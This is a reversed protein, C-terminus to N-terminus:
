TDFPLYRFSLSIPQAWISKWVDDTAALFFYWLLRRWHLVIFFGASERTRTFMWGWHRGRQLVRSRWRVFIRKFVLDGHDVPLIPFDFVKKEKRDLKKCSNLVFLVITISFSNFPHSIRMKNKIVDLIGSINKHKWDIADSNMHCQCCLWVKCHLQM